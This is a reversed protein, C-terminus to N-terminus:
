QVPVLQGRACSYLAIRFCLGIHSFNTVWDSCVMGDYVEMTYTGDVTWAFRSCTALRDGSQCTPRLFPSLVVSMISAHEGLFLRCSHAFRDQGRWFIDIYCRQPKSNLYCLKRSIVILGGRFGTKAYDVWFIWSFSTRQPGKQVKKLSSNEHCIQAQEHKSYLHKPFM